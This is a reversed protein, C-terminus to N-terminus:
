IKVSDRLYAKEQVFRCVEAKKQNTQKARTQVHGNAAIRKTVLADSARFRKLQVFMMLEELADLEVATESAFFCFHNLSHEFKKACTELHM